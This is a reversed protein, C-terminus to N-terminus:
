YAYRKVTEPHIVLRVQDVALIEALDCVRDAGDDALVAPHVM